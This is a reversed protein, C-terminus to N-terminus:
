VNKQSIFVVSMKHLLLEWGIEYVCIFILSKEEYKWKASAYASCGCSEKLVFPVYM